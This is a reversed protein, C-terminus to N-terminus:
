ANDDSPKEKKPVYSIIKFININNLELQKKLKTFEQRWENNEILNLYGYEKKIANSIKILFYERDIYIFFNYAHALKEIVILPNTDEESVEENFKNEFAYVNFIRTPTQNTLKICQDYLSVVTSEYISLKDNPSKYTKVIEDWISASQLLCSAKVKDIHKHSERYANLSDRSQAYLQAFDKHHPALCDEPIKYRYSM